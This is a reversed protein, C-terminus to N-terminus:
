GVAGNHAGTVPTILRIDCLTCKPTKDVTITIEHELSWNRQAEETFYFFCVSQDSIVTYTFICVVESVVTVGIFINTHLHVSSDM